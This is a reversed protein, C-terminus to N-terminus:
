NGAGSVSPGSLMNNTNDSRVESGTSVFGQGSVIVNARKPLGGVWAGNSDSQLISVTYFQVRNNDDVTKVGIEGRENLSFLAPSIFHADVTETAIKATASMGSKLRGDSNDIEIEVLFTRTQENARPSIYRVKGIVDQGTSLAIEADKGISIRSVNQQAVPVSVVLPNQELLVAMVGNVQAFDGQEVLLTELVGDFPAIIKTRSIDLQIRAIAAESAKVNALAQDIDSQSQYNQKALQQLRNYTRQRSELLAQQEALVLEREDLEISAILEGKSVALGEKSSITAVQGETQARLQVIRNPEVQGNSTIFLPTQQATMTQVAVKFLAKQGANQQVPINSGNGDNSDNFVVGSLMWVCLVLSFVAAIVYSKRM